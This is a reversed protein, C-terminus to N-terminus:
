NKVTCHKSFLVILHSSSHIMVTGSLRILIINPMVLSYTASWHLINKCPTFKAESKQFLIMASHKQLDLTIKTKVEVCFYIFLWITFNYLFNFDSLTRRSENGWRGAFTTECKNGSPKKALTHLGFFVSASETRQVSALRLQQRHQFHLWLFTRTNCPRSHMSFWIISIPLLSSCAGQHERSGKGELYM